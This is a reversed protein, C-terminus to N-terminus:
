KVVQLLYNLGGNNAVDETNSFTTKGIKREIHTTHYYFIFSLIHSSKVQALLPYFALKLM